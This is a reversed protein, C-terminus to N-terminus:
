EQRSDYKLLVCSFVTGREMGRLETGYKHKGSRARRRRAENRTGPVAEQCLGSTVCSATLLHSLTLWQSQPFKGKWTPIDGSPELRLLGTTFLGCTQFSIILDDLFCVSEGGGHSHGGKGWKVYPRHGVSPQIHISDLSPFNPSKALIPQGLRNIEGMELLTLIDQLGSAVM